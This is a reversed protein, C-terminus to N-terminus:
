GHRPPRPVRVISARYISVRIDGPSWVRVELVQGPPPVFTARFPGRGSYLPATHNRAATVHLLM